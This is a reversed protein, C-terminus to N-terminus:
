PNQQGLRPRRIHEATNDPHLLSYTTEIVKSKFSKIRKRLRRKTRQNESKLFRDVLAIYAPNLVISYDTM